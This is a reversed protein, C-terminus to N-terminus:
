KNKARLCFIFKMDSMVIASTYHIPGFNCSGNQNLFIHRDESVAGSAKNHHARERWLREHHFCPLNVCM